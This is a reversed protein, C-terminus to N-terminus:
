EEEGWIENVWTELDYMHDNGDQAGYHRWDEVHKRLAKIMDRKLAEKYAHESM